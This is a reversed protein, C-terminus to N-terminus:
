RRWVWRGLALGAILGALVPGARELVPGRV